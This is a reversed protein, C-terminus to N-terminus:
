GALTLIADHSYLSLGTRFPVCLLQDPLSFPAPITNATILPITPQHVPRSDLMCCSYGQHPQPGLSGLPDKKERFVSVM